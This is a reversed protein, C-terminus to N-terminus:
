GCAKVQNVLRSIRTTFESITEKEEMQILELHRKYTQLRVM